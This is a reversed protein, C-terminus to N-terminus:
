AWEVDKNMEDKLKNLYECIIDHMLMIDDHTMNINEYGFANNYFEGIKTGIPRYRNSLILYHNYKEAAEKYTM